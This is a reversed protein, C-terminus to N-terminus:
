NGVLLGKWGNKSYLTFDESLDTKIKLFSNLVPNTKILDFCLLM